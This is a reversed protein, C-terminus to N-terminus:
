ASIKAPLKATNNPRVTWMSILLAFFLPLSRGVYGALSDRSVLILLEGMYGLQIVILGVLFGRLLQRLKFRRMIVLYTILSVLLPVASFVAILTIPAIVSVPWALTVEWGFTTQFLRSRSIYILRQKSTVFVSVWLLTLGAAGCLIHLEQLFSEFVAALVQRWYWAVSRGRGFQELLDGELAENRDRRSLQELLWTALAPPRRSKM